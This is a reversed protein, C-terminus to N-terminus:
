KSIIPESATREIAEWLIDATNQWNFKQSQALGKKILDQRLPENLLISMMANKVDDIYFPDAYLTAEGAVEPLSTIRSCIVPVGSRMAELIPIGFGEFYPIYTLCLASPLIQYLEARSIHGTFVVDKANKMLKLQNRIEGMGFKVSGVILLKINPMGGTEQRFLEYAKLLNVLNKRPMIAGVFIFYDCGHTYIQKVIQQEEKSIPKFNENVGNYAVSIKEPSIHYSRSIDQKSFESVTVIKTSKQAFLPFYYTYYKRVLFPLNDALHSFNIDHIVNVVPIKLNLPIHGDTSLFVDPEAKKLAYPLVFKFYFYRFVINQSGPILTKARVNQGFLFMPHPKRDFFLLFEHEPHDDTIRKLTEYTFWGKGALKNKILVRASVAIKM